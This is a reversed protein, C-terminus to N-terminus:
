LTILCCMSWLKVRLLEFEQYNLGGVLEFYIEKGKV